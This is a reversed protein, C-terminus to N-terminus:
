LSRFFDYFGAAEHNLAANGKGCFGGGSSARIVQTV